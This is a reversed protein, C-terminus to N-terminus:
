DTAVPNMAYSEKMTYVHKDWIRASREANYIPKRIMKHAYEQQKESSSPKNGLELSFRSFDSVFVEFMQDVMDDEINCLKANELILQGYVVLTFLEGVTLLFDIDKQQAEDPGAMMLAERLVTIQERFVNM